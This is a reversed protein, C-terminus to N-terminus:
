SPLLRCLAFDCVFYRRLAYILELRAWSWVYVSSRHCIPNVTKGLASDFELFFAVFRGREEYRSAVVMLTLTLALERLTKRMKKNYLLVAKRLTVEVEVSAITSYLAGHM